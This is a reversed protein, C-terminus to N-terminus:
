VLITKALVPHITLRPLFSFLVYLFYDLASGAVKQYICALKPHWM